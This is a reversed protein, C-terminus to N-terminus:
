FMRELRKPDFPKRERRIWYSSAGRDIKEDLVDKGRLRLILGIPTMVLYYFAGLLVRTNIWGLAFAFLMWVTYVPRMLPYLFAGGAGFILAGAVAWMWSGNGRYLMYLSAALFIGAFLFGFNRVNKRSANVQEIL